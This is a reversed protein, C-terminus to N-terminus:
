VQLGEPGYQKQLEVFWPMEIKCPQCWTAWFNLVVAKGHFDSLRVTRGDLSKLEFDPAVRSQGNAAATPDATQSQSTRSAGYVLLAVAFMTGILILLNRKMFDVVTRRLFKEAMSRFVSIGNM